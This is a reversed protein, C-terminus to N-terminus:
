KVKRLVELIPGSVSTDTTGVSYTQSLHSHDKFVTYTPCRGADCLAKNLFDAQEVAEMIGTAETRADWLPRGTERAVLDALETEHARV